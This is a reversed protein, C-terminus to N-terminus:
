ASNRPTPLCDLDARPYGLANRLQFPLCLTARHGTIARVTATYVWRSEETVRDQRGKRTVGRSGAVRWRMGRQGQKILPARM